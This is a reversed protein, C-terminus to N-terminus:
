CILNKARQREVLAIPGTDESDLCYHERVHQELATRAARLCEQVSNLIASVIEFEGTPCVGLSADLREMAGRFSSRAQDWKAELQRREECWM